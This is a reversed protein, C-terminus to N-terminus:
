QQQNSRVAGALRQVLQSLEKRGASTGTYDHVRIKALAPLHMPVDPTQSLVLTPRGLAQAIALELAANPNLNTLDAVVFSAGAIDQWIARLIDPDLHEYGIRYEFGARACADRVSEECPKSWPRFATVHFLTRARDARPYHPPFAPLTLMAGRRQDRELLAAAGLQVHMGDRSREFSDLMPAAMADAGYLDRLRGITLALDDSRAERQVGLVAAQLALAIRMADDGDQQLPVPEIDIDFPLGQGQGTLTVIPSGLVFAWGCEYAVRAVPAAARVVAARREKSRALEGPPDAASRDYGGFDFAAVASRRLLNWRTSTPDQVGHALPRDMGILRCAADVAEYATPEGSFFVANPDFAIEATSWSPEIVMLSHRHEFRRLDVAARRLSGRLHEIWQEDTTAARLRQIAVELRSAIRKAEARDREHEQDLTPLAAMREMLPRLLSAFQRQLPSAGRQEYPDNTVLQGVRRAERMLSQSAIEKRVPDDSIPDDDEAVLERMVDTAEAAIVAKDAPAYQVAIAVVEPMLRMVAKFAAEDSEDIRASIAQLETMARTVAPAVSAGGALGDRLRQVIASAEAVVAATELPPQPPADQAEISERAIALSQAVEPPAHPEAIRFVRVLSSRLVQRDDDTEPEHEKLGTVAQDLLYESFGETQLRSDLEAVVADCRALFTSGAAHADTLAELLLAMAPDLGPLASANARLALGVLVMLALAHGNLTGDLSLRGDRVSQASAVIAERDFAGSAVSRAIRRLTRPAPEGEDETADDTLLWDHAARLSQVALTAAIRASEDAPEFDLTQLKAMAEAMLQASDEGAVLRASVEEVLTRSRIYPTDTSGYQRMLVGFIEDRQARATEIDEAPAIELLADILRVSGLLHRMREMETVPVLAELAEVANSFSQGDATGDRLAARFAEVIENVQQETM